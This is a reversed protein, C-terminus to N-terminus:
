RTPTDIKYQELLIPDAVDLISNYRIDAGGSALCRDILALVLKTYGEAGKETAKRMDVGSGLFSSHRFRRLLWLLDPPIHEEIPRAAPEGFIESNAYDRVFRRYESPEMPMAVGPPVNHAGALVAQDAALQRMNWRVIGRIWPVPTREFALDIWPSSIRCGGSPPVDLPSISPIQEGLWVIHPWNVFQLLSHAKSDASDLCLSEKALRATVHETVTTVFAKFQPTPNSPTRVTSLTAVPDHRAGDIIQIPVTDVSCQSVGEAVSTSTAMVGAVFLFFRLM